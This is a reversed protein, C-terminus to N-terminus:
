RIQGNELEKAETHVNCDELLALIKAKHLGARYMRRLEQLDRESLGWKIACSIERVDACSELAASWDKRIAEPTM